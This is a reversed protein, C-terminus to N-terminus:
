NLQFILEGKKGQNLWFEIPPKFFVDYDLIFYQLKVHYKKNSAGIEFLLNVKKM